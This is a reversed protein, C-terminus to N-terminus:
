LLLFISLWLLVRAQRELLMTKVTTKNNVALVALACVEIGASESAVDVCAVAEVLFGEDAATESEVLTCAESRLTSVLGTGVAATEVVATEVVATEVVATEVAAVEGDSFEGAALAPRAACTLGIWHM